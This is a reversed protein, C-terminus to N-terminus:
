EESCYYLVWRLVSILSTAQLQRPSKETVTHSAGLCQVLSQPLQDAVLSITLQWLPLCLLYPHSVQTGADEEEVDEEEIAQEDNSQEEDENNSGEEM